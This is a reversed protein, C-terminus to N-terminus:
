PSERSSETDCFRFFFHKNEYILLKFYSEINM